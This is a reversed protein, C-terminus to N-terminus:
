RKDTAARLSSPLTITSRARLRTSFDLLTVGASLAVSSLSALPRYVSATVVNVASDVSSLSFSLPYGASMSSLLIGLPDFLAVAEPLVKQL